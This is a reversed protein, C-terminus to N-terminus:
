LFYGSPEAVFAVPLQLTAEKACKPVIVCECLLMLGAAASQLLRHVSTQMRTGHM